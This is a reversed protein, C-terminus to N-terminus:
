GGRLKEARARLATLAERERTFLTDGLPPTVELAIQDELEKMRSRLDADKGEIQAVLARLDKVRDKLEDATFGQPLSGAEGKEHAGIAKELEGIEAYADNRSRFLASQEQMLKGHRERAMQKAEARIAIETAKLTFDIRQIVLDAAAPDAEGAELKAIDRAIAETDKQIQPLGTV